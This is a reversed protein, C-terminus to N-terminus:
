RTAKCGHKTRLVVSANRIINKNSERFDTSKEIEILTFVVPTSLMNSIVLAYKYLMYAYANPVAFEFYINSYKYM